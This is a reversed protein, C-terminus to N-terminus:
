TAPTSLSPVVDKYEEALKIRDNSPYQIATLIDLTTADSSTPTNTGSVTTVDTPSGSTSTTPKATPNLAPTVVVRTATADSNNAIIIPQETPLVATPNTRTVFLYGAGIVAACLVLALFTVGAILYNRM